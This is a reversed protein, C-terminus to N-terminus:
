GELEIGLDEAVSRINSQVDGYNSFVDYLEILVEGTWLEEYNDYTDGEAQSAAFIEDEDADEGLELREIISNKIENGPDDGYLYTKLIGWYVYASYLEESDDYKYRFRAQDQYRDFIYNYYGVSSMENINNSEIDNFVTVTDDYFRQIFETVMEPDSQYAQEINM